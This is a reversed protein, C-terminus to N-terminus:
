AARRGQQELLLQKVRDRTVGSDAKMSSYIFSVQQDFIEGSNPKLSVAKALAELLSKDTKLNELADGM